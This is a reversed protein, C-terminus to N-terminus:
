GQREQSIPSRFPLVNAGRMERRHPNRRAGGDCNLIFITRFKHQASVARTHPPIIGARGFPRRVGLGESGGFLKGSDNWVGNPMASSRTLMGKPPAQDKWRHRGAVIM